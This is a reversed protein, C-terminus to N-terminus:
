SPPKMQTAVCTGGACFYANGTLRDVIFAQGWDNGRAVGVVTYRGGVFVGAVVIAIGVLIGIKLGESM